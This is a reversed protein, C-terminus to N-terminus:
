QAAPEEARLSLLLVFSALGCIYLVYRSSYSFNSNDFRVTLENEM